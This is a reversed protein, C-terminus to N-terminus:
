TCDQYLLYCEQLIALKPLIGPRNLLANDGKSYEVDIRKSNERANSQNSHRQKRQTIVDWDAQYKIPLIVNRCFVLQGPTAGLTTHVTSGIAYATMTFFEEWPDDEDLDQEDLDFTRLCNGLVQHAYELISNAQPEM